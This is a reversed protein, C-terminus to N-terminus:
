SEKGGESKSLSPNCCQERWATPSMGTERRFANSFYNPDDFGCSFAIETISQRTYELYKKAADMRIRTLAQTLTENGFQQFLHSISSYSCHYKDALDRLSIKDAFHRNIYMLLEEYFSINRAGAVPADRLVQYYEILLTIMHQLPAILRSLREMDPPKTELAAYSELLKPYSLIYDHAARALRPLFIERPAAYGGVSLFAVTKGNAQRLPFVAEQCGAWCVGVYAGVEQARKLVRPQCKVCHNWAEASEKICLCYVNQHINYPLFRYWCPTLTADMRHVTIQIKERQKLDDLYNCIDGVLHDAFVDEQQM